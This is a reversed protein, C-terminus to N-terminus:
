GEEGSFDLERNDPTKPFSAPAVPPLGESIPTGMRVRALIKNLVEEAKGPPLSQFFEELQEDTITTRKKAPIEAWGDGFHTLKIEPLDKNM